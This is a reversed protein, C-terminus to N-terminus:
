NLKQLVEIYNNIDTIAENDINKNHKKFDIYYSILNNIDGNQLFDTIDNKFSELNEFKMYGVVNYKREIEVAMNVINELNMM